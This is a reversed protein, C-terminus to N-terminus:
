SALRDSVTPRNVMLEEFRQDFADRSQGLALVLEPVVMDRARALM